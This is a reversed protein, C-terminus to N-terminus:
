NIYIIQSYIKLNLTSLFSLNNKEEDMQWKYAEM